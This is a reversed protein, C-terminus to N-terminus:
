PGVILRYAGPPLQGAWDSGSAWRRIAEDLSPSGSHRVEGGLPAKGLSDVSLIVEFVSNFPNNKSILDDKVGNKDNFHTIKGSIIPKSSGSIPYIEFFAARAPLGEGTLSRTGFTTFPAAESLPVAKAPLPAELRPVQLTSEKGIPRSPDFQLVPSSKAFPADEPQGVEARGVGGLTSKAPFYVASTDLLVVSETRADGPAVLRVGNALPQAPANGGAGPKFVLLALLFLGLGALLATRTLPPIRGGTLNRFTSLARM